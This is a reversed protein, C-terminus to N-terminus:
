LSIGLFYCALSFYLLLSCCDMITSILPAAMITPDLHFFTSAIIPLLCGVSKAIVSTGFMSLCITVCVMYNGPYQISLRVFNVAALIVGCIVAVRVEKWWVRFIDNGTIEGLTMGRIILTAAQSGANGGTGTMMPIFTVLLPVAAFANEFKTLMAGTIMSSIMLFMLWFIRDKSLQFVSTKLYPKENPAIAAMKQIDETAEQEMVDVMDDVTIIGVMRDEKDVVALTLLDYKNFLNAVEEQDVGTRTFIVNEDMVSEVTAEPDAMVIDKLTVYGQLRRHENTVFCTYITESDKGHERIYRLADPIPMHRKLAVYEATMMSGASDEPYKLYQNITARTDPQASQLVKQVLNAPLEEIMDVADDMALNEIIDNLEFASINSVIKTQTENEMEAFVDASLDKPLMRFIILVQEPELEDLFEAIDYENMEQLAYALAKYRKKDLLGHLIDFTMNNTTHEM